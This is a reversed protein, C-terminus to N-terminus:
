PRLLSAWVAGQFGLGPLASTRATMPDFDSSHFSCAHTQSLIFRQIFLCSLLFLFPLMCCSNVLLRHPGEGLLADREGVRNPKHRQVLAHAPSAEPFAARLPPPLSYGATSVGAAPPGTETQLLVRGESAGTAQPNSSWSHASRLPRLKQGSPRPMLRSHRHSWRRERPSSIM